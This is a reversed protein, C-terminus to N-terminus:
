KCPIRETANFLESDLVTELLQKQKTYGATIPELVWLLELLGWYVRVDM